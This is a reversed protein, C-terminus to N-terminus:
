QQKGAILADLQTITQGVVQRLDQHRAALESNESRPRQAAAEIRALAAEIRALAADQQSNHSIEASMM